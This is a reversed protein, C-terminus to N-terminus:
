QARLNAENPHIPLPPSISIRVYAHRAWDDMELYCGPLSPLDLGTQMQAIVAM